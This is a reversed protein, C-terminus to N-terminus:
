FRSANDARTDGEAAVYNAQTLCNLAQVLSGLEDIHECTAKQRDAAGHEGVDANSAAWLSNVQYKSTSHDSDHATTYSTERLKLHLPHIHHGTQHKYNRYENERRFKRVVPQICDLPSLYAQLKL